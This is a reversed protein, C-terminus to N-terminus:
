GASAPPPRTGCFRARPRKAQRPAARNCDHVIRAVKRVTMRAVTQRGKAQELL